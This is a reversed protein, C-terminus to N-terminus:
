NTAPSHTASPELTPTSGFDISTAGREKFWRDWFKRQAWNQYQLSNPQRLLDIKVVANTLDAEVQNAIPSRAFRTWLDGSPRQYLSYGPYQLLDSVLHLRRHPIRGDFDVRWTLGTIAQLIPSRPASPLDLLRDVAADIPAAFKQAWVREIQDPNSLLPDADKGSGPNCLSVLTEPEFPKKASIFLLSFKAFTPLAAREEAIVARVRAAQDRNFRDTADVLVITHYELPADNRCLTDNDISLPRQSLNIALVTGVFAVSVLILSGFLLLTRANAQHRATHRM